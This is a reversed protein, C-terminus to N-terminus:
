TFKSSCKSPVCTSCGSAIGKASILSILKVTNASRCAPCSPAPEDGGVLEEFEHECDMCKYEYLPM